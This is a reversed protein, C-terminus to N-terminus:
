NTLKNNIIMIKYKKNIKVIIIIAKFQRIHFDMSELTKETKCLKKFSNKVQMKKLSILKRM